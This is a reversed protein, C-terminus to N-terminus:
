RSTIALKSRAILFMREHEKLTFLCRAVQEYVWKCRFLKKVVFAFLPNVSYDGCPSLISVLHKVLIKLFLPSFSCERAEDLRLKVRSWELRANTESSTWRSSVARANCRFALFSHRQLLIAFAVPPEHPLIPSTWDLSKRHWTGAM